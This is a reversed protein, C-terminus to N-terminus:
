KSVSVQPEVGAIANGEVPSGPLPPPPPPLFRGEQPNVPTEPVCAVVILLLLLSLILMTKRM